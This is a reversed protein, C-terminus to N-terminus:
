GLTVLLATVAGQKPCRTSALEDSPVILRGAPTFKPDLFEIHRPGPQDFQLEFLIDANVCFPPAFSASGSARDLWERCIEKSPCGECRPLAAGYVLDLQPSNIGLVAIMEHLPVSGEHTGPLCM